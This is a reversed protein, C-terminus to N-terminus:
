KHTFYLKIMANEYNVISRIGLKHSFYLIILLILVDTKWIKERHTFRMSM